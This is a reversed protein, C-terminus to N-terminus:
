ATCPRIRCIGICYSFSFMRTDHICSSPQGLAAPRSMQLWTLSMTILCTSIFVPLPSSCGRTTTQSGLRAQTLLPRYYFTKPIRQLADSGVPYQRYHLELLAGPLQVEDPPASWEATRTRIGIEASWTTTSSTM